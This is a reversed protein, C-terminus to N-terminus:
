AALANLGEEGKTLYFQPYLGEALTNLLKALKFIMPVSPCTMGREWSSFTSIRVGLLRAVERQTVGLQLRYRRIENAVKPPIRRFRSSYQPKMSELYRGSSFGFLPHSTRFHPCGTSLFCLDRFGAM